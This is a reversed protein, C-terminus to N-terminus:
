NQGNKALEKELMGWVENRPKKGSRSGRQGGQPTQPTNNVKNVKNVKNKYTADTTCETTCETTSETTCETTVGEPTDGQYFGYNEITIVTDNTTVDTTVMGDCELTALFRKVTARHWGWREGLWKMSCCVQGRKREHLNGRHMQKGDKWRALLLLDIWAQGKSFPKENWIWNDQIKRHINIYGNSNM